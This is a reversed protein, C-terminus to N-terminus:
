KGLEWSRESHRKKILSALSDGKNELGIVILKNNLTAVVYGGICGDGFCIFKLHTKGVVVKEIVGEL